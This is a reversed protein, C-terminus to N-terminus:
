KKWEWKEITNFSGYIHPEANKLDKNYAGLSRLVYASYVPVDKQVIKDINSYLQKTEEVSKASQIKSLNDALKSNKYQPWDGDSNVIWDVDPYPDIPSLTYQVAFLDFQHKSAKALLNSLDLTQVTVNIGITKLNAAIINAAQVFTSDGSNVLFTLKKSKDWHAEDVLKKAKKLDFAVPKISADYYPSYSTVFGDVIDGNGNLLSKVIEERNTALQIARRIRVDSITKTNISVLQHTLPQELVTKVNSLKQVNKYDEQPFVGLTQQVFDIEGSKLGSYLQSSPVIKINLNKIKPAGRWYNKNATYTIYHNSDYKVLKYPGSVVTPKNFWSYKSLQDPSVDKLVHKPVTFLYRGITNDFTAISLPSKTIFAVTKNDIKKLGAISTAGDPSNGSDSFGKLAAYGGINVNGVKPDTLRLVSFIVDDATIDQGDSWKAKNNIKVTFTRNDKTTVSDALQGVVNLKHDLEILPLFNLGIAYKGLETLDVLLPNITTLSDTAGITVVNKDVKNESKKNDSASSCGALSLVVLLFSLVIAFGKRLKM